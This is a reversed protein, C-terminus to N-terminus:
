DNMGTFVNLLQVAFLLINCYFLLQVQGKSATIKALQIRNLRVLLDFVYYFVYFVQLAMYLRATTIMTSESPIEESKSALHTFLAITMVMLVVSIGFFIALFVLNRGKKAVWAYYVVMFAYLYIAISIMYLVFAGYAMFDKALENM